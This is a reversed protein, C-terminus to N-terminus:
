RIQVKKNLHKEISLDRSLSFLFPSFNSSAAEQFLPNFTFGLKFKKINGTLGIASAFSGEDTKLLHTGTTYLIIFTLMDTLHYDCEIAVGQQLSDLNNLVSYGVILDIKPMFDYKLRMTYNNYTKAQYGFFSLLSDKRNLFTYVDTILTFKKSLKTSIFFDIGNSFGGNFGHYNICGFTGFEFNKNNDYSLMFQFSPQYGYNDGTWNNMNAYFFEAAYNASDIKLEYQKDTFVKHMRRGTFHGKQAIANSCLILCFIFISNKM